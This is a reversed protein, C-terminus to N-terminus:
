LNPLKIAPELVTKKLINPVATRLGDLMLFGELYVIQAELYYDVNNFEQPILFWYNIKVKENKQWESTPYLGYSMAYYKRHVVQGDKNKIIM